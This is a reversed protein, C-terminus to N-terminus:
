KSDRIIQYVMEPTKAQLIQKLLDPHKLRLVLRSLLKIYEKDQTDSAGIMFIFKVPKNDISGYEIGSDKIGLAMVFDKISKHRVHPVAIEMGIGTSMLKERKFIEKGFKKPNTILENQSIVEILEDLADQKNEANLRIIFREEIIDSIHKIGKM